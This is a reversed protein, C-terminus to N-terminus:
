PLQTKVRWDLNSCVGCMFHDTYVQPWEASLDMNSAKTPQSLTVDLFSPEENLRQFTEIITPVFLRPRDKDLVLPKGHKFVARMITDDLRKQLLLALKVSRLSAMPLPRNRLFYNTYIYDWKESVNRPHRTDDKQPARTKKSHKSRRDDNELFYLIRHVAFPSLESSM